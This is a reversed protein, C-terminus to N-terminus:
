EHWKTTVYDKLMFLIFIGICIGLSVVVTGEKVTKDFVLGLLCDFGLVLTVLTATISSIMVVIAISENWDWLKHLAERLRKM